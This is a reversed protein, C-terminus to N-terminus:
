GKKRRRHRKAALETRKEARSKKSVRTLGAFFAMENKGAGRPIIRGTVSAMRSPEVSRGLGVRERAAPRSSEQGIEGYGPALSAVGWTLPVNSMRQSFALSVWQDAFPCHFQGAALRLSRHVNAKLWCAVCSVADRSQLSDRCWCSGAAYLSVALGSRVTALFRSRSLLRCTMRGRRWGVRSDRCLKTRRFGLSV